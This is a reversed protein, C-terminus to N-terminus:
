KAEGQRTCTLVLERVFYQHAMELDRSRLSKVRLKLKRLKTRTDHLDASLRDSDKQLAFPFFWQCCRSQWPSMCYTSASRPCSKCTSYKLLQATPSGGSYLTSSPM